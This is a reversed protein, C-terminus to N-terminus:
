DIKVVAYLILIHVTQRLKLGSEDSKGHQIESIENM